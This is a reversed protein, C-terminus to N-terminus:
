PKAAIRKGGLDRSEPAAVIREGVQIGSLVEIQDGSPAGLTVYRLGAIQNADVTYVAQLQGRTVIASRPVLFSNREGRTFRARGSMGTRLRADAPLAIKVLFSRNAPDAAPVIESVRGRLASSGFADLVVPASMGVHALRIDTEDVGAELRYSRTDEITFLPAGPSAMAGTDMKRETIVGAFPARIQTYGLATRAQALLANAQAQQARASDRRAEASARKANMEDFEQPSVSKREYLQQYRKLTSESLAFDSEAAAAEKEAASVAAAAEDVASRPQADDITALVQGSQVRDGEHARIELINGMMQSAVQSTQAAQVTGIAEVWDPLKSQQVVIVEVGNVTEPAASEAAPKSSSCGFLAGGFVAAAFM